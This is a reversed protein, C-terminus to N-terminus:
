STALGPGVLPLTVRFAVAVGSGQVQDLWQQFHGLAGTLNPPFATRCIPCDIGVSSMKNRQKEAALNVAIEAGCTQCTIVITVMDTYPFRVERSETM